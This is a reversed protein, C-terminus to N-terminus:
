SDEDDEQSRRRDFILFAGLASMAAALSLLWPASRAVPGEQGSKEIGMAARLVRTINQHLPLDEPEVAEVTEQDNGPSDEGSPAHRGRPRSRAATEEHDEASTRTFTRRNLAGFRGSDDSADETLEEQLDAWLSALDDPTVYAGRKYSSKTDEPNCDGSLRDCSATRIFDRDDESVGVDKFVTEPRTSEDAYSTKLEDFQQPRITKYMNPYRMLAKPQSRIAQRLRALDQATAPKGDAARVISRGNAGLKLGTKAFAPSHGTKSAAVFDNLSSPDSPDGSPAGPSWGPVGAAGGDDGQVQANTAPGAGADAKAGPGGSSGPRASGPAAAAGLGGGAGSLDAASEIGISLAKLADGATGADQLVKNLRTRSKKRIARRKRQRELRAKKRRARRAAREEKSIKGDGDLDDEKIDAGDSAPASTEESVAPMPLVATGLLLVATLLVYRTLAPKLM